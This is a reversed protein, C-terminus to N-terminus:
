LKLASASVGVLLRDAREEEGEGGAVAMALNPRATHATEKWRQRRRDDVEESRSFGVVSSM